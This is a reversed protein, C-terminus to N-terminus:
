EVAGHSQELSSETPTEILPNDFVFLIMFAGKVEIFLWKATQSLM